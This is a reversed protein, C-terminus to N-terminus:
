LSTHTYTHTHTHLGDAVTHILNLHAVSGETGPHKEADPRRNAPLRRQHPRQFAGGQSVSLSFFPHSSSNWEDSM